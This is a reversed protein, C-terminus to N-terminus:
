FLGIIDDQRDGQAYLVTGKRHLHDFSPQVESPTDMTFHRGACCGSAAGAASQLEM